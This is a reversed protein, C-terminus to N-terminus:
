KTEISEFIIKLLKPKDNILEKTVQFPIMFKLSLDRPRWKLMLIYHISSVRWNKIERARTPQFTQIPPPRNRFLKKPPEM